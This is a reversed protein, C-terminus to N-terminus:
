EKWRPDDEGSYVWKAFSIATPPNISKYNQYYERQKKYEQQTSFRAIVNVYYWRRISYRIMGWKTFEKM